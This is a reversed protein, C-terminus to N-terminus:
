RLRGPSQEQAGNPCKCELVGDTLGRQFFSGVERSGGGEKIQTGARLHKLNAGGGNVGYRKQVEYNFIELSQIEEYIPRVHM